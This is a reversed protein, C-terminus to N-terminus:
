VSSDSRLLHGFRNLVIRNSEIMTLPFSHQCIMYGCIVQDVDSSHSKETNSETNQVHLM